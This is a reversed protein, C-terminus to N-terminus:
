SGLRLFATFTRENGGQGGYAIVTRLDPLDAPLKVGALRLLPLADKADVYAFGTTEEQMGSLKRAELFSPDASLKPGGGRFDDIGRQTTSVVFQGGIVARYLKLDKLMGTKPLARLLDDLAASADATDTPQTVLTVEPM